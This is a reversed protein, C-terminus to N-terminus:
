PCLAALAPPHPRAELPWVQVDRGPLRSHEDGGCALTKDTIMSPYQCKLTKSLSFTNQRPGFNEFTLARTYKM